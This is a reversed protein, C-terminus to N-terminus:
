LGECSQKSGSLSTISAHTASTCLKTCPTTTLPEPDIGNPSVTILVSGDMSAHARGIGLFSSSAETAGNNDSSRRRTITPYYHSMTDAVGHRLQRTLRDLVYEIPLSRITFAM